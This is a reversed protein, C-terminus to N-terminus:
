REGEEEWRRRRELAERRHRLAQLQRIKVAEIPDFFAEVDGDNPYESPGFRPEEYNPNSSIM